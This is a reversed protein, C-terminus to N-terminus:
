EQANKWFEQVPYAYYGDKMTDKVGAEIASISALNVELPIKLKSATECIMEAAKKANEM